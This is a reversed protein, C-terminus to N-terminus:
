EKVKNVTNSFHKIFENPDKFYSAFSSLKKDNLEWWKSDLLDLTVKESFRKKIEKAPVGGVITYPPVDKTVVSGMGVVAGIGIKVGQKILANQGIWVDHGIITKKVSDRKHESFKAKVSDRGEYFVPSMSVWNYPHMGGGIIVGNAISCFSGIHANVIECNYGCFSHKEMITDVVNSGSEIKSTPDIKSNRIASGKIKKLGKAWLFLLKKKM